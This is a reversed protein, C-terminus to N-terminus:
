PAGTPNNPNKVVVCASVFAFLIRGRDKHATGRKM